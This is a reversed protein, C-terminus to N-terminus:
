KSREFSLNKFALTYLKINKRLKYFNYNYIKIAEEKHANKLCLIEKLYCIKKKKKKCYADAVKTSPAGAAKKDIEAVTVQGPFGETFFVAKQM